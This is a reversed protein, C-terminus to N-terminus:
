RGMGSGKSWKPTNSPLRLTAVFPITINGKRTAASHKTLTWPAYNTEMTYQYGKSWSTTERHALNVHGELQVSVEESAILPIGVLLTLVDHEICFFHNELYIDFGM